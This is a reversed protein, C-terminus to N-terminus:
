KTKRLFAVSIGIFAVDVGALGPQDGLYAAVFFMLGAAIFLFGSRKKSQKSQVSM